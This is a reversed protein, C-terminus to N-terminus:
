LSIANQDHNGADYSDGKGKLDHRLPKIAIRISYFQAPPYKGNSAQNAQDNSDHRNTIMRQFDCM